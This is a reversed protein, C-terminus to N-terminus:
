PSVHLYMHFYADCLCLLMFGCVTHEKEIEYFIFHNSKNTPQRTIKGSKVYSILNKNEGGKRNLVLILSLECDSQFTVLVHFM